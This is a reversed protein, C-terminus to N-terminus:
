SAHPHLEQETGVNHKCHASQTISPLALAHVDLAKLVQLILAHNPSPHEDEIDLIFQPEVNARAALEQHTLGIEERTTRVVNALQAVTGMFRRTAM